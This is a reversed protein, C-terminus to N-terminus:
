GETDHGASGTPAGLHRSSGTAYARAPVTPQSAPAGRRPDTPRKRAPRTPHRRITKRCAPTVQVILLPYQEPVSAALPSRLFVATLREHFPTLPGQRATSSSTM